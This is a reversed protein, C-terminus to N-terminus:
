CKLGVARPNGDGKTLTWVQARDKGVGADSRIEELWSPEVIKIENSDPRTQEAPNEHLTREQVTETSDFVHRYSVMDPGRQALVEASDSITTHVVSQPNEPFM